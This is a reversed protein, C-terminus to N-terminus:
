FFSWAEILIPNVLGILTERAYDPPKNLLIVVRGLEPYEQSFCIFRGVIPPISSPRVYVEAVYKKDGKALVYPVVGFSTTIIRRYREYGMQALYDKLVEFIEGKPKGRLGSMEPM